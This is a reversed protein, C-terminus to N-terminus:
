PRRVCTNQVFVQRRKFKGRRVHARVTASEWCPDSIRAIIRYRGPRLPVRFRSAHVDAADRYTGGRRRVAVTAEGLYPRPDAVSGCPGRCTADLIRGKVGSHKADSALPAVAGLALAAVAVAGWALKM